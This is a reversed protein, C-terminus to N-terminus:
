ADTKNALLKKKQRSIMCECSKNFFTHSGCNKCFYTHQRIKGYFGNFILVPLGYLALIVKGKDEFEKSFFEKIQIINKNAAYFTACAILALLGWGLIKSKKEDADEDNEPSIKNQIWSGLEYIDGALYAFGAITAVKNEHSLSNWVTAVEEIKQAIEENSLKTDGAKSDKENETEESYSKAFFGFIIFIWILRKKKNRSNKM